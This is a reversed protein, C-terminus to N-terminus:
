GGGHYYQGTYHQEDLYRKVSDERETNGPHSMFLIEFDNPDSGQLRKFTELVALSATPDYGAGAAWRCGLRDAMIENDRGYDQLALGAVAGAIDQATRQNGLLVGILLQAGIQREIRRVAHQQRIHTIEHALVWAVQDPDGNLEDILGKYFYVPGGPLAFANAEDEVVITFTYPYEPPEAAAAVRDGIQQLWRANQSTRDIRHQSDFDTAAQQGIQIEESKSIVYTSGQCGGLVFSVALLVVPLAMLKMRRNM